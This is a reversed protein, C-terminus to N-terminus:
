LRSYPTHLLRCSAPGAREDTNPSAPAYLERLRRPASRTADSPGAQHVAVAVALPHTPRGLGLLAGGTRRLLDGTEVLSRRSRCVACRALEARCPRRRRSEVALSGQKGSHREPMARIELFGRGQGGGEGVAAREVETQDWLEYDCNFRGAHGPSQRHRPGEDKRTAERRVGAVM